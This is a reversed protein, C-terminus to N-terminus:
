RTRVELRARVELDLTLEGTSGGSGRATFAVFGEGPVTLDLTETAGAGGADALVLEAEDAGLGALAVNLGGAPTAVLHIVNGPASEVYYRRTPTAGDIVQGVLQKTVGAGLAPGDFDEYARRTFDVTFRGARNAPTVKVLLSPTTRLIRGVAPDGATFSHLVSRVDCAFQCFYPLKTPTGAGPGERADMDDLRGLTFSADFLEVTLPGTATSSAALQRWPEAGGDLLLANAGFATVDQALPADAPAAVLPLATVTSTVGFATGVADRPAYLMFYHRGPALTRILGHYASFTTSSAANGNVGTLQAVFLGDRDMIVGSLEITSAFDIGTVAGREPVDFHFLNMAAFDSGQPTQFARGRSVASITGGDTALAQSPVVAQIRLEYDLPAVGLNWLYDLALVATDSETIGGFFASVTPSFANGDVLQRLEGNATLVVAAAARSDRDPFGDGDLDTPDITAFLGTLGTSFPGRYFVLDEGITGTDGADDFPRTEIARREITVYYCSTGDPNGAAVERAGQTLPFLTRSDTIALDYTGAAPLYVERRAMDTALNLGLRLWSALLPSAPDGLVKFGGALGAVGDASIKILAPEDVTMRYRDFDPHDADAPQICGHLTFGAAGLAPVRVIGAPTADDEFGNPEPGELADIPLNAAPDRCEGGVFVTGDGCVSPDVVCQGTDADLLTGDGCVPPLIPNDGVCTGRDDITGPGCIRANDGCGALLLAIWLRRM